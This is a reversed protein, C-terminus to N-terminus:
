AARRADVAAAVRLFQEVTLEAVVAVIHAVLEDDTARGGLGERQERAIRETHLRELLDLEIKHLTGVATWSEDRLALARDARVERLKIELQKELDDDHGDGDLDM